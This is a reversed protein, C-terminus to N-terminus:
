AMQLNDSKRQKASTERFLQQLEASVQWSQITKISPKDRELCPLDELSSRETIIQFGILPFLRTLAFNPGTCNFM